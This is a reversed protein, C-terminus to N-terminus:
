GALAFGEHHNAAVRDCIDSNPKQDGVYVM